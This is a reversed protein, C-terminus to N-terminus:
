PVLMRSLLTMSKEVQDINGVIVFTRFSYNGAPTAETRFVANWKMTGQNPFAFRGYGLGAPKPLDPSYIGMAFRRDGTSLIVPYSQEGPGDSLPSLLRSKPEYTWFTSFEVPMYGTLAEFVASNHYESVQFTILYEIVNELGQYGITVKKILFHNSLKTANQASRFEHHAGCGQPYPAMPQLWYAMQSTTELKNNVAQISILRSTSADSRDSVSGAETPNYCEGLGDFSSASQLERGHDSANIFQKGDWTLSTIAGAFAASTRIVLPSGFVQASISADGPKARNFNFFDAKSSACFLVGQALLVTFYSNFKM